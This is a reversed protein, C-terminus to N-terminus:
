CKESNNMKYWLLIIRLQLLILKAPCGSQVQLKLWSKDLLTPVSFYASREGYCTTLHSLDISHGM